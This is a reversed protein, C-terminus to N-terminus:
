GTRVYLLAIRAVFIYPLLPRVAPQRAVHQRNSRITTHARRALIRRAALFVYVAGCTLGACLVPLVDQNSRGTFSGSGFVGSNSACEILPDAIAAAVLAAALCFWTRLPRARHPM